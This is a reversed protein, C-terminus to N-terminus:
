FSRDGYNLLRSRPDEKAPTGQYGHQEFLVENVAAIAQTPYAKAFSQCDWKQNSDGCDKREESLSSRLTGAYMFSLRPSVRLHANKSMATFPATLRNWAM